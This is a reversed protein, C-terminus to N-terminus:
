NSTTTFGIVTVSRVLVGVTFSGTHTLSTNPKLRLPYPLDVQVNESQATLTIVGRQIITSSVGSEKPTISVVISGTAIDCTADKIFNYNISTIFIEGREDIAPLSVTGTGTVSRVSSVCFSSFAKNLSYTLQVKDLTETPVKDMSTSIALDNVAKQIVDTRNIRAM